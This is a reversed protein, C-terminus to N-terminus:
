GGIPILKRLGRLYFGNFFCIFAEMMRPKLKGGSMNVQARFPLDLMMADFIKSADDGQPLTKMAQMKLIRRYLAGFPTEQVDRLTSDM